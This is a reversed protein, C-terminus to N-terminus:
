KAFRIPDIHVINEETEITKTTDTKSLYLLNMNYTFQIIERMDTYMKAFWELNNLINKGTWIEMYGGYIRRKIYMINDQMLFEYENWTKNVFSVIRDMFAPTIIMRSTVQDECKVHFLKEFEMHEFQVHNKRNDKLQSNYLLYAFIWWILISTLIANDTSATMAVYSVYSFFTIIFFIAIPLFYIQRTKDQIIYLDNKLSIRAHPFAVRMLYCHNAITRRSWGGSDRIVISNILEFGNVYFSKGDNEVEFYISDEVIDITNFPKLFDKSVLYDLKDFSYKADHSYKLRSYLINCIKEFIHNGGFTNIKSYIKNYFILNGM